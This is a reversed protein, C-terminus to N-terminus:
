LQELNDLAQIRRRFHRLRSIAIGAVPLGLFPLPGPVGQPNVVAYAIQNSQNATIGLDLNNTAGSDTVYIGGALSNQPPSISTGFNFFASALAVIPPAGDGATGIYTAQFPDAGGNTRLQNVMYASYNSNMANAYATAFQNALNYNDWWPQQTLPGTGNNYLSAYTGVQFTIDYNVSNVTVVLAQSPQSLLLAQATMAVVFACHRGLRFQRELAIATQSLWLTSNKMFCEGDSFWLVAQLSANLHCHSHESSAFPRKGQHSAWESSSM